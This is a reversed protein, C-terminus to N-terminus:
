RARALADAVATSAPSSLAPPRDRWADWAAKTCAFYERIANTVVRPSCEECPAGVGDADIGAQRCLAVARALHYRQTVVLARTVGFVQRARVCSDYTDLGYPDEVVRSPDVGAEVLYDRMVRTENGSSGHGDGSVLAVRAHGSAIVEATTDLRNRLFALPADGGDALQAGLVIVVDAHPGAGDRLETEDWLHGSAQAQVWGFPVAAAATVALAATLSVRVTM